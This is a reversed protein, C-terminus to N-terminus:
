VYMIDHYGGAAQAQTRWEVRTSSCMDVQGGLQWTGFPSKPQWLRCAYLCAMLSCRICVNYPMRTGQSCCPFCWSAPELRSFFFDQCVVFVLPYPSAGRWRQSNSMNAGCQLAVTHKFTEETKLACSQDFLSHVEADCFSPDVEEYSARIAAFSGNQSSSTTNVAHPQTIAELLLIRHRQMYNITCEM